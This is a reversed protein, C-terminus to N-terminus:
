ALPQRHEAPEGADFRQVDDGGRIRFAVPPHEALYYNVDRGALTGFWVVAIIVLFPLALLVARMFMRRGIGVLVRLRGTVAGITDRVTVPRGGIVHGAIWAHGALLAIYFSITVVTVLLVFALGPVSLVFGAIDFNSVVASGSRAVLRDGLWGALPAIAVFGLLQVLLQWAVVVRWRRAFDALTRRFLKTMPM